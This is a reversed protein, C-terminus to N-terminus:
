KLDIKLSLDTEVEELRRNYKKIISQLIAFFEQQNGSSLLIINGAIFDEIALITVREFVAADEALHRAKAVNDRPVLLVPHLGAQANKACKEVVAHSPAATIHFCTTGITYDGSRGTQADGAHGPHNSIEIGPLRQELKAGVLHQEIKGGSKGKAEELIKSIWSAPSHHKACSININQGQTM